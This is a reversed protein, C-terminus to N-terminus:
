IFEISLSNTLLLIEYNYIHQDKNIYYLVFLVMYM